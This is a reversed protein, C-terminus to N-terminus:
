CLGILAACTLAAETLAAGTLFRNRTIRVSGRLVAGVGGKRDPSQLFRAGVFPEERFELSHQESESSSITTTGFDM